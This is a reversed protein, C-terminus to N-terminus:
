QLPILSRVNMVIPTFGTFNKSTPIWQDLDFEFGSGYVKLHEQSEDFAIGGVPNPTILMAEDTTTDMEEKIPLLLLGRGTAGLFEDLDLSFEPSINIKLADAFNLTDELEPLSTPHTALVFFVGTLDERTLDTKHKHILAKLDKTSKQTRQLALIELLESYDRITDEIKRAQYWVKNEDITEALRIGAEGLLIGRYEPMKLWEALKDIKQQQDLNLDNWVELLIMIRLDSRLTADLSLKELLALAEPSDMSGLVDFARQTVASNNKYNKFVSQIELISNEGLAGRKKEILTLRWFIKTMELFEAPADEWLFKIDREEFGSDEREALFAVATQSLAILINKRQNDEDTELYIKRLFEFVEEKYKDLIKGKTAAKVLERVIANLPVDYFGHEGPQLLKVFIDQGSQGQEILDAVVDAQDKESDLDDLVFRAYRESQRALIKAAQLRLESSPSKWFIDVMYDSVEKRRIYKELSALYKKADLIQMKLHLDSFSKLEFVKFANQELLPISKKANELLENFSINPNENFGLFDVGGIKTWSNFFYDVLTDEDVAIFGFVNEIIQLAMRLDDINKIYESSFLINFFDYAFREPSEIANPNFNPSQVLELVNGLSGDGMLSKVQKKSEITGSLDRLKRRSKLFSQRDGRSLNEQEVYHEIYDAMQNKIKPDLLENINAHNESLELYRKVFSYSEYSYTEIQDSLIKKGLDPDFKVVTFFATSFQVDSFTKNRVGDLIWLRASESKDSLHLMKYFPSMEDGMDEETKKEFSEIFFDVVADGARLYWENILEYEWVEVDGLKGSSLGRMYINTTLSEIEEETANALANQAVKLELKDKLHNQYRSKLRSGKKELYSILINMLEKPLMDFLSDIRLTDDAVRDAIIHIYDGIYGTEVLARIMELIVPKDRLTELFEIPPIWGQTRCLVGMAYVREEMIGSSILVKEFFGLIIIDDIKPNEPNLLEAAKKLYDLRQSFNKMSILGRYIKKIAEEPKDKENKLIDKIYESFLSIRISDKSFKEIPELYRRLKEKVVKFPNENMIPTTSDPTESLFTESVEVSSMLKEVEASSPFNGGHKLLVGVLVLAAVSMTGVAALTSILSQGGQMAKVKLTKKMNATTVGGSIYKRPILKQDVPDFEERIYNYVGEKVSKLYEQYVKEKANENEGEVGSTKSQDVYMKWFSERVKQKFWAALIIGHYIQRLQVFHEGENIEKELVPLIHKRIMAEYIIQMEKTQIENDSYNKLPGKDKNKRMSLFDQELMVKLRSHEIIGKDTDEMVVAEDPVIWVRNFADVPIQTTGYKEYAIQYIEDWFEEGREGEPSTLSATLNKLLYDQALLNQGMQTKGFAEPIMRNKEYPSLNVWLDEDPITVGILFYKILEKAAKKFSEGELQSDGKDIIFDFYLPHQPFIRLGKITMPSFSPSLTVHQPLPTASMESAM